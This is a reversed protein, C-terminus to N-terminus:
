QCYYAIIFIVGYLNKKLLMFLEKTGRNRRFGIPYRLAILKGPPLDARTYAQKIDFAKRKWKFIVCLAQLLRATHQNPSAVFTETFHVNKQMNGPHGSIAM